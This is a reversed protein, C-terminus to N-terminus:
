VAPVKPMDADAASFPGRNWPWDAPATLGQSPVALLAKRDRPGCCDDLNTLGWKAVAPALKGEPASSIFPSLCDDIVAVSRCGSQTAYSGIDRGKGAPNSWTVVHVKAAEWLGHGDSSM